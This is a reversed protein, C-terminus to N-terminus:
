KGDSPPAERTDCEYASCLVGDHNGIYRYALHTESWRGCDVCTSSFSGDRQYVLQGRDNGLMHDLGLRSWFLSGWRDGSGRCNAWILNNFEWVVWNSACTKMFGGTKKTSLPHDEPNPKVPVSPNSPGAPHTPESVGADLSPDGVSPNFPGDGRYPGTEDEDKPDKESGEEPVDEDEPGSGFPDKDGSRKATNGARNSNIANSTQHSSITAPLADLSKQDALISGVSASKTSATAITQFTTPLIALFPHNSTAAVITKISKASHTLLAATALTTTISPNQANILATILGAILGIAALTKM